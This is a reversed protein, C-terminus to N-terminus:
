ANSVEGGNDQIAANLIQVMEVVDETSLLLKHFHWKVMIRDNEDEAQASFSELHGPPGIVSTHNEKLSM